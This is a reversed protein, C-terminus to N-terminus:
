IAKEYIAIGFEDIHALLERNNIDARPVLDIEWPLLLDDLLTELRALEPTGIDPGELCLDIDSGPKATGKARSGFLIVRHITSERSLASVLLELTPGDLGARM